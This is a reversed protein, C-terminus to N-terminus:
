GAGLSRLPTQTAIAESVMNLFGQTADNYGALADLDAEDGLEYLDKINERFTEHRNQWTQDGTKIIQM